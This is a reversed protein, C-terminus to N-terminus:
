VAEKKSASEMEATLKSFKELYQSKTVEFAFCANGYQAALNNYEKTIEEASRAAVVLSPKKNKM